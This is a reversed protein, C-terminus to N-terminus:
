LLQCELADLAFERWRSELKQIKFAFFCRMTLHTAKKTRNSGKGKLKKLNIKKEM